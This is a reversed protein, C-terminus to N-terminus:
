KELITIEVRRNKSMNAETDNPAVPKEAGFGRTYVNYESRVGMEVLFRAVAEARQESLKQRAEATGALATHGSILLEKDPYRELLAAIKTIKEKESPLLNASDASFQINELSITIGEETDKVSANPIGLKQIEGNMEKVAGARDIQRVETVTMESTGRFDMVTGSALRLQIHFNDESAQLVGRENDWLLDQMSYGMVTVPFDDLSLAEPRRGGAAPTDFSIEYEVRILDYEKGDRMTKGLYTYKATFPVKFPYEIAFGERLDHAEEGRATWTEGKQVDRDPFVPVGRVVPMFYEDGITMNGLADRRFVSPYERGWSFARNTNRESTMFTCTTLASEPESETAGRVDSIDMTVRNTIEAQHSLKRNVYVNERVVSNIRYADGDAFKFRFREAEAPPAFAAELALAAIVAAVLSARARCPRPFPYKKM